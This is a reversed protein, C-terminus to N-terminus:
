WWPPQINLTGLYVVYWGLGSVFHLGFVIICIVCRTSLKLAAVREGRARIEQRMLFVVSSVFLIFLAVQAGWLFNGSAFRPGSEALFYAYFSGILFILWSLNLAFDQTARKAYLAYVALPFLISAIFKPLLWSSYFSYVGLPAFIIRAPMNDIGPAASTYTFRYQWGLTVLAPLSLGLVLVPWMVREKRVYKCLWVLVVAPLLCITYSPKALTSLVTLIAALATIVPVDRLPHSSLARTVLVFLLVALPKLVVITPNHYVTIGVYGLYMNHTPWTFLTIPTVLMLALTIYIYSYALPTDAFSVNGVEYWVYSYVVVSLLIYFALSVIYGCVEFSSGLIISHTVITLLQFLFHPTQPTGSQAMREAYALHQPYDTLHNSTPVAIVPSLLAGFLSGVVLILLGIPGISAKM